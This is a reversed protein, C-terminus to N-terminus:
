SSHLHKFLCTELKLSWTELSIILNGAELSLFSLNLLM